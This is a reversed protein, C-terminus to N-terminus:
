YTILRRVFIDPAEHISRERLKVVTISHHSGSLTITTYTSHRSSSTTIAIRLNVYAAIM